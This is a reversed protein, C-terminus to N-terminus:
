LFNASQILHQVWLGIDKVRQAVPRRMQSIMKKADLSIELTNNILAFVSALPFAAVFITVLGFQLVMELYEYFLAQPKWYALLYDAEWQPANVIQSEDSKRLTWRHVCWEFWPSSM